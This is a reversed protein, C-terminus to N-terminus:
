FHSFRKRNGWPFGLCGVTPNGGDFVAWIGQEAPGRGVWLGRMQGYPLRWFGKGQGLGFVRRGCPEM